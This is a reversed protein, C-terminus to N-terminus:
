AGPSSTQSVPEFTFSGPSWTILLAPLVETGRPAGVLSSYFRVYADGHNPGLSISCFSRGNWAPPAGPATSCSGGGLLTSDRGRRVEVYRVTSPVTVVFATSTGSVVSSVHVESGTGPVLCPEAAGQITQLSLCYVGPSPDPFGLWWSTGTPDSSGDFVTGPALSGDPWSSPIPTQNGWLEFGHGSGAVAVVWVRTRQRTGPMWVGHYVVGDARVVDLRKASDALSGFFLTGGPVAYQSDGGGGAGISISTKMGPASIRLTGERDEKVTWATGLDEGTGVHSGGKVSWTMEHGPVAPPFSPITPPAVHIPHAPESRNSRPVLSIGVVLGIALVLATGGATSAVLAQRRRVSRMLGDPAHAVLPAGSADRELSARLRDELDNV